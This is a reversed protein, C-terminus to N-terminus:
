RQADQDQAPLELFVVDDDQPAPLLDRLEDAETHRGLAELVTVRQERLRDQEAPGGLGEAGELALLGAEAEGLDLRAGSAVIALEVRDRAGLDAPAEAVLTLAREPRGLGRECDAEVARHQDVGSLRRVTRLERLAEAYNGLAYATLAVAERVVDVRGARRLAAQAHEYAQTPDTDILSGAMVLHRAVREANDKSLTRLRGRAVADLDTAEVEPDIPPDPIREARQEQGPRWTQGGTSGRASGAGDRRHSRRYEAGSSRRGSREEDAGSSRVAKCREKM